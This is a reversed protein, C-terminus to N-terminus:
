DLPMEEAAAKGAVRGSTFCEALNGGPDYLHSFFSGLEGVAYLHPIPEDYPDLVQQLANHVPGGQTNSICPWTEMAYFPPVQLPVMTRPPRRFPDDGTEVIQNWQAFTAELVDPEMLGGNEATDRIKLALERASDAKLIWGREIERSNDESWEYLDDGYTQVRGIPAKARAAEDFILYSPNRPFGPLAPDLISMPGWNTEPPGPSVESMYRLGLKDVVICPMPLKPNAPGVARYRMSYPYEPFKLGFHGHILWMHWLAAGVSQAMLIGDGTHTMPAVSFTPLGQLYQKKLWDSQEFGGCALIVAKRARVTIQEGAREAVVGTVVGEPNTVLRRVPTGLMTEIGRAEVNDMVLKAARPGQPKAPKAWPFGKFGPIEFVRVFYFSESGPFPYRGGVLHHAPAITAKDVRALENLYAETEALQRAFPLILSDDIRGGSTHTLYTAGLEADELCMITGGSLLALGGAYKGKECIVVGAGADHANIAAVAGAVGYGVVVVDTEKTWQSIRLHAM